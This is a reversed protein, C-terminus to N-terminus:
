GIVDEGTSLLCDPCVGIFELRHALVKYQSRSKFLEEIITIPKIDVDDVRGCAICRVHYHNTPDGDFRRQVGHLDIKQAQAEACLVELNRYVTAM